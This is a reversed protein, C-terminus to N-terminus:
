WPTLGSVLARRAGSWESLEGGQRSLASPSRRERPTRECPTCGSELPLNVGQIARPHDEGEFRVAGVAGECLLPDVAVCARDSRFLWGQHGLFTVAFVHACTAVFRRARTSRLTKVEVPEKPQRRL